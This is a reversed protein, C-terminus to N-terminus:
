FNGKCLLLIGILILTIGLMHVATVTEKLIFISAALSFLYTTGVLIPNIKSLNYKSILILFLVFSVIYCIGGFVSLWHINLQFSGNKFAYFLKKNTGCKFLVQGGVSFVIYVIILLWNM